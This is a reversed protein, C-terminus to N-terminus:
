GVLILLTIMGALISFKFEETRNVADCSTKYETISCSRLMNTWPSRLLDWLLDNADPNKLSVTKLDWPYWLYALISHRAERSKHWNRLHTDRIHGIYDGSGHKKKQCKPTRADWMFHTSAHVHVCSKLRWWQRQAFIMEWQQRHWETEKWGRYGATSCSQKELLYTKKRSGPICSCIKWRRSKENTEPRSKTPPFDTSWLSNSTTKSVNEEVEPDLPHSTENQFTDM